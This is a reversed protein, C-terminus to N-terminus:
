LYFNCPNLEPSRAPRLRSSRPRNEFMEDLVNISYTHATAGDQVFYGNKWLTRLYPSFFVAKL